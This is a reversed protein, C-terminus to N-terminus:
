SKAIQRQTRAIGSRRIRRSVYNGTKISLHATVLAVARPNAINRTPAQGVAHAQPIREM